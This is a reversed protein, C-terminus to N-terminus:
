AAEREEPEHIGLLAELKIIKASSSAYKKQCEVNEAEVKELRVSMRALEERLTQIVQQMANDQTDASKDERRDKKLMRVMGYFATGVVGLGALGKGLSDVEDIM